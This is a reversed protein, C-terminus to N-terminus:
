GLKEVSAREWFNTECKRLIKRYFIRVKEVIERINSQLKDPLNM